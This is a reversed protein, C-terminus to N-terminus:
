IDLASLAGRVGGRFQMAAAEADTRGADHQIQMLDTLAHDAVGMANKAERTAKQIRKVLKAEDESLNTM